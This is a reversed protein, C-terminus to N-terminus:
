AMRTHTVGSVIALMPRVTVSRTLAMAACFTTFGAPVSPPSGAGGPRCNVYVTRARPRMIFASSNPSMM